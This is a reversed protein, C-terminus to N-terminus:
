MRAAYVLRFGFAADSLCLVADPHAGMLVVALLCTLLLLAAQDPIFLLSSECAVMALTFRTTSTLRSSKTKYELSANNEDDQAQSV